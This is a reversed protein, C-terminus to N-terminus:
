VNIRKEIQDRKLFIVANEAQVSSTTETQKPIVSQEMQNWFSCCKWSTHIFLNDSTKIDFHTINQEM